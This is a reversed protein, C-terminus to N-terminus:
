FIFNEFTNKGGGICQRWCERERQGERWEKGIVRGNYEGDLVVHEVEVKENEWNSKWYFNCFLFLIFRRWKEDYPQCEPKLSEQEQIKDSRTAHARSKTKRPNKKNKPSSVKPKKKKIEGETPPIM